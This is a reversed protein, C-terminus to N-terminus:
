VSTAPVPAADQEFLHAHAIETRNVPVVQWHQEINKLERLSVLPRNHQVDKGLLALAKVSRQLMRLFKM